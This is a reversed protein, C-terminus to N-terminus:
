LQSLSLTKKIYLWEVPIDSKRIVFQKSMCLKGNQYFILEQATKTLKATFCMSVWEGPIYSDCTTFFRWTGGLTGDIPGFYVYGLFDNSNYFDIGFQKIRFRFRRSFKIMFRFCIGIQDTKVLEEPKSYEVTINQTDSADKFQIVAVQKSDVFLIETGFFTAWFFTPSILM